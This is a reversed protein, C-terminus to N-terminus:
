PRHVVKELKYKLNGCDWIRNWGQTKRLEWETIHESDTSSKRLAFRHIRDKNNKFYWYNPKTKGCYSFGITSYM